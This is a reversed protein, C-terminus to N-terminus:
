TNCITVTANQRAHDDIIHDFEKMAINNSNIVHSVKNSAQSKFKFNTLIKKVDHKRLILSLTIFIMLPLIVLVFAIFIALPSDFDDIVPVAAILIILLLIVTDFTNLIENNYPKMVIHIIAIIRCAVILLYSVTSDNSSNAIIITIVVLRCIMYYGAFFCYKHGSKDFPTKYVCLKLVCKEDGDTLQM